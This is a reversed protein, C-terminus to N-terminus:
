QGFLKDPEDSDKLYKTLAKICLHKKKRAMGASKYNLHKAIEEMSYKMSWLSLVKKCKEGLHDLIHDLYMKREQELYLFEPTMYDEDDPPVNGRTMSGARERRKLNYYLNKCISAVYTKVSAEGRYAGKRVNLIFAIIGDQFIDEAEVDNAGSRKLIHIVESRCNSDQYYRRMAQHMQHGGTM